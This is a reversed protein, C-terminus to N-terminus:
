AVVHIGIECLLMIKLTALLSDLSLLNMEGTTVPPNKVRHNM